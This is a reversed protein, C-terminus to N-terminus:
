NRCVLLHKEELKPRQEEKTDIRFVFVMTVISVTLLYAGYYLALNREIKARLNCQKLM